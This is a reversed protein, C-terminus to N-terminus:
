VEEEEEERWSWAVLKSSCDEMSSRTLLLNVSPEKVSATCSAPTDLESPKSEGVERMLAAVATAAVTTSGGVGEAVRVGEGVRVTTALVEAEEEKEGGEEELLLLPPLEVMATPKPTPSPTPMGMRMAM